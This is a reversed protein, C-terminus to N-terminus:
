TCPMDNWGAAGQHMGPNHEASFGMTQACDVVHQGFQSAAPVTASAPPPSRPRKHAPRWWCRRGLSYPVPPLPSWSTASACSTEGEHRHRSGSPTRHLPAPRAAM